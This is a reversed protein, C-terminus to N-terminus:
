PGRRGPWGGRGRGRPSRFPGERVSSCAVLLSVIRQSHRLFVSVSDGDSEAAETQAGGLNELPEGVPFEMHEVQELVLLIHLFSNLDRQCHTCQFRIMCLRIKVAWAVECQQSIKAQITSPKVSPFFFPDNPPKAPYTPSIV